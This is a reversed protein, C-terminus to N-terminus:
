LQAAERATVEATDDAAGLTRCSAPGLNNLLILALFLKCTEGCCGCILPRSTNIHYKLALVALLMWSRPHALTTAAEPARVAAVRTTVDRANETTMGMVAKDEAAWATPCTTLIPHIM